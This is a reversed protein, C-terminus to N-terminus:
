KRMITEPLSHRRRLLGTHPKKSKNAQMTGNFGVGDSQKGVRYKSQAMMMENMAFANTEMPHAVGSFPNSNEQWNLIYDFNQENLQKQRCVFDFLFSFLHM